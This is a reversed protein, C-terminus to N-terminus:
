IWGVFDTQFLSFSLILIFLIESVTVKYANTNQAYKWEMVARGIYSVLIYVFSITWPQFFWYLELPNRTMTVAFGSLISVIAALRIMWEVKKHKENVYYYSFFKPRKVNLWRSMLIAFSFWLVLVGALLVMLRLLFVADLGYWPM